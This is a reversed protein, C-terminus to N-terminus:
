DDALIILGKKVLIHCTKVTVSGYNETYLKFRQKYLTHTLLNM